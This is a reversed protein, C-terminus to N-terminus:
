PICFFSGVVTLEQLSFDDRIFASASGGDLNVADTITLHSLIKSLINPVDVLKPGIWTNEPDYIIFFVISGDKTVGLGVRRAFEDDRIALKVPSGSSLLIPGTQLALRVPGSPPSPLISATNKEDISFYGNLLTNPIAQRLTKEQTMFLGTPQYDTTYFGGNIVANCENSEVLSRAIRKQTFNPVLSLTSLQPVITWAVRYSKENLTMDFSQPPPTPTLTPTPTSSYQSPPDALSSKSALMLILLIGISVSGVLIFRM